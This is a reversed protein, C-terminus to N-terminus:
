GGAQPTGQPQRYPNDYMGFGPQEAGPQPVGPQPQAAQNARVRALAAMRDTKYQDRMTDANQQAYAAGGSNAIAGLMAMPNSAPHLRGGMNPADPMQSNQRLAQVMAQQQAIKDGQPQLSGMEMLYDLMADDRNSM